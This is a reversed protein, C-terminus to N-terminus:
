AALQAEENMQLLHLFDFALQAYAAAKIARKDDKLMQTLASSGAHDDCVKSTICLDACLFAAGLEAVLEEFAYACDGLGKGFVRAM